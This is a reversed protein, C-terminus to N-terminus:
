LQAGRANYTKGDHLILLQGDRLLKQSNAMPSQTNELATTSQTTFEGSYTSIPQASSDKATITYDYNTGSELGTVTFRLGKVTMEAYQVRHQGDRGPAFAINLLIGDKNFTLICFVADGKKIEITYTDASEDTPWTITVDTTGPTITVDDTEVEESSICEKNNFQCFVMDVNYYRQAECPIYLYANYNTFSSTEATPPIEAYSYIEYLKKCGAFANAGIEEMSAPLSLKNLKKCNAFASDSITTAGNAIDITVVSDNFLRWPVDDWMTGYGTINITNAAYQWYLNDGCQGSFSQAFEAILITDQTLELTRPNDTVGDSWQVFHYYINPTASITVTDLYKASTVGEVSGQEENCSLSIAYTNKDFTATYITDGTVQVQRPNDSNGDNWQVFHYGYSASASITIYELYNVTTDGQTTGRQTDSSVTTITYTNPAFEAILITDQTLELTSPNDTNGDNWQVFHYGFNPTASIQAGECFTNYDVKATGMINDNVDVEISYEALLEQINTFDKWGNAAKYAEVCGCPVYVPISTSVGYFVNSGLTPPTTAECTISALSSCRYFAGYGISTVSNPITISTLSSCVIFAYDGISTVSNPITVSTLSPCNNFADSGISTVSNPITVSTLSSCGCFASSGIRTVSNPITISTFDCGAFAWNGISTVSEPITISTLSSCGSFARNGISTVSNPITISTLSSCGSFASSGIRTVSNPINTNQCGAILTNSATEIIANCNERSDYITNGDEVVISTLGSCGAFASEGFSTVSNPITISTLSSCNNFASNGISTVSNPITVSTLSSCWYFAYGGISTVSNPITVSTLSSCGCFAYDGISTVSNPITISTLSSCDSFAGYGISTVNNPITISPLFSCDAFAEDGISTLNTPLIIRVLRAKGNFNVGSTNTIGSLDVDVLSTMTERMCTFDADNLTGTLILKPVLAPRTGADFILDSLTSPTAVHLTLTTENNVFVYENGWATQYASLTNEPIYVAPLKTGYFVDTGLTPPTTGLCTISNLSSCWDFAYDGISTVSNPITISTLSSCGSFARNGISTVSNPIITNKCGAILTNTATEIIANCNDRSDYVQSGVEVVITTLSSCFAFASYGISTVSNPITISTLSSCRYFAYNGISTVSNPITVSTLSSCWYFAYGGISTVSNPITVSTLADCSEFASNGISTVSNPITVSTLHPRCAVLITDDKILLGDIETDGVRAGWYNNKEADLTSNNIFNDKTFACNDFANDGISTVSNPITVSTLSSCYEFARGGISTVSNPITVSTLSSCYAFAHDGISTVSNPITISTLSSCRYFAYNGISTVSNPITISTLSFCNYFANNGISTVSYTTDNYTVTSPITVSGSYENSYSDYSSGRYTVAVENIKDYLINYYIGNVEFNHAWLSTTAVLAFVLTFLKKM